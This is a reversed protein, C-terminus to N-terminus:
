LFEEPIVLNWFERIAKEAGPKYRSLVISGDGVMLGWGQEVALLGYTNHGAKFVGYIM